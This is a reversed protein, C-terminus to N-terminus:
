EGEKINLLERVKDRLGYTRTIYSLTREGAQVERIKRILIEASYDKLTGRVGGIENIAACLSELDSANTILERAQADFEGGEEVPPIALHELPNKESM